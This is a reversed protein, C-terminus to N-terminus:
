VRRSAFRRGFYEAVTLARSRRLHRGFLVAGAIYGTVNVAVLILVVTGHGTYAMGVEGLFAATSLLSAVLTGVVLLTPAQRGAVFYDDLHKVKRGAYNGVVLYIAISIVIGWAYANM